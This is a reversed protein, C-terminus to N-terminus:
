RQREAVFLEGQYAVRFGRDVLYLYRDLDIVARCIDSHPSDRAVALFENTTSLQRGSTSRPYASPGYAPSFYFGSYKPVTRIRNLTWNKFRFFWNVPNFRNTVTLNGGINDHCCTRCALYKAGSDIAYDMAADSVAGCAGFFVVATPQVELRPHFVDDQQFSYNAPLRDRRFLRYIRNWSPDIDAGIVRVQPSQSAIRCAHRGFVCAPNVVIGAGSALDAVLSVVVDVLHADRRGRRYEGWFSTYPFDDSPFGPFRENWSATLPGAHRDMAEREAARAVIRRQRFEELLGGLAAVAVDDQGLTM